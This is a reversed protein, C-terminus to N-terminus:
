HDLSFLKKIDGWTTSETATTGGEEVTVSATMGLFFHPICHYPYLGPSGNFTYSPSQHTVDFMMNFLSGANPDFPGSGSTVTHSGDNWVWQVTDGVQITVNQPQFTLGVQMVLVTDAAAAQPPILYATLLIVWLLRNM